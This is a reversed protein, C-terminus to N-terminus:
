KIGEGRMLTTPTKGARGAINKQQITSSHQPRQKETPMSIQLMYCLMTQSTVVLPVVCIMCGHDGAELSFALSKSLCRRRNLVTPFSMFADGKNVFLM